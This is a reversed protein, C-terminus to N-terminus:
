EDGRHWTQFTEELVARIFNGCESRPVEDSEDLVEALTRGLTDMADCIEITILDPLQEEVRGHNHWNEVVRLGRVRPHLVGPASSDEQPDETATRDLVAILQDNLLSLVYEEADLLFRHDSPDESTASIGLMEPTILVHEQDTDVYIESWKPANYAIPAWMCFTGDICIAAQPDSSQPNIGARYSLGFLHGFRNVQVKIERKMEVIEGM